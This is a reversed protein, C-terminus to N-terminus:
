QGRFNRAGGSGPVPSRLFGAPVPQTQRVPVLGEHQGIDHVPKVVRRQATLQVIGPAQFQKLVLRSLQPLPHSRCRRVRGPFIIPGGEFAPGVVMEQVFINRLEQFGSAIQFRGRRLPLLDTFQHRVIGKRKILGSTQERQLALPRLCLRSEGLGPGQARTLGFDPIFQAINVEARFFKVRGQLFIIVGPM